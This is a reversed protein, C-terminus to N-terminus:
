RQYDLVDEAEHNLRDAAANIRVLDMVAFNRRASERLYDSLIKEIFDSRSGVAGILRDIEILVATSLTISTKTKM